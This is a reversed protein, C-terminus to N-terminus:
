STRRLILGLKLSYGGSKRGVLASRHSTREPGRQGRRHSGPRACSEHSDGDGKSETRWRPCLRDAEAIIHHGHQRFGAAVLSRAVAVLVSLIAELEGQSSLIREPVKVRQRAIPEATADFKTRGIGTEDQELCSAPDSMFTASTKPLGRGLVCQQTLPDR